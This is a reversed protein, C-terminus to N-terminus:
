MFLAEAELFVPGQMLWSSFLQKEMYETYGVFTLESSCCFNFAHCKLAGVEFVKLVKEM